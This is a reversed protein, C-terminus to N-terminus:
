PRKHHLMRVPSWSKGNLLRSPRDLVPLKLLAAVCNRLQVFLLEHFPRCFDDALPFDESPKLSPRLPPRPRQPVATYHGIRPTRFHFLYQVPADLMSFNEPRERWRNQRFRAAFPKLLRM